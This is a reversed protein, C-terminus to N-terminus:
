AQAIREKAWVDHTHEALRETLAALGAPLAVASTDAPM